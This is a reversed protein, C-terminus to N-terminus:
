TEAATLSQRWCVNCNSIRKYHRMQSDTAKRQKHLSHSHDHQQSQAGAASTISYTNHTSSLWLRQLAYSAM